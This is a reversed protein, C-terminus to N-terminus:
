NEKTAIKLNKMCKSCKRKPLEGDKFEVRTGTTISNCLTHFYGHSVVSAVICHINGKGKIWYKVDEIKAM